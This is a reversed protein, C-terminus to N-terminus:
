AGEKTDRKAKRNGTAPQLQTHPVAAASRILFSLCRQSADAFVAATFAAPRAGLVDGRKITTAALTSFFINWLLIM